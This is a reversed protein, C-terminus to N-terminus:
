PYYEADRFARAAADRTSIVPQVGPPLPWNIGIQADDWRIAREDEPYYFETCKYLFHVSDSLVM